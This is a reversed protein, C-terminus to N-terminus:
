VDMSLVKCLCDLATSIWFPRESYLDNLWFVLMLKVEIDEISSFQPRLIKNGKVLNTFKNQVARDVLKERLNLL